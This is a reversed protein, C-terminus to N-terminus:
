AKIVGDAIASILIMKYQFQGRFMQVIAIIWFVTLVVSAIWGVFPICGCIVDGIATIWSWALIRKEEVTLEAKETLFVVLALPWFILAFGFLVNKRVSIKEM